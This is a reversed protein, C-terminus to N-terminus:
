NALQAVGIKGSIQLVSDATSMMGPRHAASIRTIELRRLNENIRREKDVDLYATGEDLFLIKPQRYLARALLVRQKQGGSLSSGMDGILSNYAMPMRMIDDHIEALRACEVMRARDFATDFFCINDAISGSLLQDEQMVAGVSERYVRHGITPLPIDDILVDGSTPEFLGLMIKVLTTKGGGSPGMITLFQGPEVILNVNSLVFPETEAYRFCVNRLEIKGRIERAYSLPREHGSELTSLAIDALRDLHLGIIRYEIGKEVLMGANETFTRKYSMFALVMGVTLAGDLAFHVALYITIINELAFIGDNITKFAIKVHGLRVNSSVFDAYRSLWQGEQESERNFVKLCQIARMTEIFTSDQQAKSRIVEDSRRWFLRFLALRTMAYLIFAGSVVLALQISYVFIMVLTALAMMGDVIAAIMGEAILHRVPEISTFRSLVDGMHRKEFYALPLRLLHHFLQAGIRYHLANQLTLILLSRIATAAVQIAALLGFGLALIVLFDVDGLAIVQDVALQIYLPSAVVLIELVVSLALIQVLAHGQGLNQGFFASLPLKKREDAATFTQTPSLELAAGTLHKSAEPMSLRYEGGAPDHIVIGRATVAKLVVFHSMDWHLIAPLRLQSVSDLEIRVARSSFNMDAAIQMLSRLTVGQLSVPHRRRLTNLDVHHGYFSSLMALCALGCEAAETQLIVPLRHKWAM